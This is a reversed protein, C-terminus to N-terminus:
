LFSSHKKKNVIESLVRNLTDEACFIPCMKTIKQWNPNKERNTWIDRFTNEKLNGLTYGPRGRAHCCTKVNMNADIITLFNMALCTEYPRKNEDDFRSYKQESSLVKFDETELKKAEKLQEDIKSFDGHATRFQIYDVGLDRSIKTAGVMGELAYNRTLYGVGITCESNTTKKGVCLKEINGLVKNFEEIGLGHTKKYLEPTDADLSVRCWTSNKIISEILTGELNLGNTIFGVDLGKSKAYEITPATAPNLAPEGGGSFVLGKLGFDALQDIVYFAQEKTLSEKNLRGGPCGDCYSDCENTMDIKATVLTEPKGKKWNYLQNDIHDFIKYQGFIEAGKSKNKKDM